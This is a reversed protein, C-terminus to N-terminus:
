AILRFTLSRRTHDSPGKEMGLPTLEDISEVTILTRRFLRIAKLEGAAIMAWITSRGVSLRGHADDISTLVQEGSLPRQSKRM